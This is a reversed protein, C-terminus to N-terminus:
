PWLLNVLVGDEDEDSEETTNFVKNTRRGVNGRIVAIRDSSGM